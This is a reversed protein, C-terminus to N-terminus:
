ANFSSIRSMIRGRVDLLSKQMNNLFESVQAFEEMMQAILKQSTAISGQDAKVKEMVKSFDAAVQGNNKDYSPTNLLEDTAKRSADQLEILKNAMNVSQMAKDKQIITTIFQMFGAMAGIDGSMAMMAFYMFLMMMKKQQMQSKGMQDMASMKADGLMNSQMWANFDFNNTNPLGKSSGSAKGQQAPTPYTPQAAAGGSSMSAKGSGSKTPTSLGNKAAVSKMLDKVEQPFGDANEHAVLESHITKLQAEANKILGELKAELTPNGGAAKANALQEKLKGIADSLAELRKGTKKVDDAKVKGNAEPISAEGIKDLIKDLNWTADVDQGKLIETLKADSIPAEDAKNPDAYEVKDVKGSSDTQIKYLDNGGADKITISM